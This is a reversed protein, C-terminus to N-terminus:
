RRFSKKVEEAEEPSFYWGSGAEEASRWGVKRLWSRLKKGEVNLEDAIQKLSISGAPIPRAQRPTRQYTSKRRGGRTIKGETMSEQLNFDGIPKIHDLPIIHGSKLCKWGTAVKLTSYVRGKYGCFPCDYEFGFNRESIGEQVIEVVEKGVHKLIWTTACKPCYRRVITYGELEQIDLLQLSMADKPCFM